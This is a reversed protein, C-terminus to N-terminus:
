AQSHVAPLTIIACTGKEVESEIRLTGGQAEVLGRAIRLGLGSHNDKPTRAADARYFPDFIYPLHQASIGHGTDTVTIRVEGEVAMITVAVDAGPGAYSIANDILNDLVQAMRDPDVTAIIFEGPAVPRLTIQALAAATQHAQMVTTAVERVDVQRLHLPLEKLDLKALELLDTVLHLMRDSTNVMSRMARARREPDDALGEELAGAMTRLTTVPSRLEHAVDALLQQRRKADEELASLQGAVRTAMENMATAVHSFEDAGKIPIRYDLRGAHFAQAGNALGALPRTFKRSLWAGTVLALVFAIGLRLLFNYRSLRGRSRDQNDQSNDLQRPATGVTVQPQRPHAAQRADPAKDHSRRRITGPGLIFDVINLRIQPPQRKYAEPHLLMEQRLEKLDQQVFYYTTVGSLIWSLFIALFIAMALQGSVNIKPVFRM